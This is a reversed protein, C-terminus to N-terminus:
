TENVTGTINLIHKGCKNPICISTVANTYINRIIVQTGNQILVTFFNEEVNIVNLVFGNQLNVTQNTNTVIVEKEKVDKCCNGCFIDEINLTVNFDNNM